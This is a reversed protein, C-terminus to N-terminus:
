NNLRIMWKGKSFIISYNLKLLEQMEDLTLFDIICSTYGDEICKNIRMKLVTFHFAEAHKMLEDHLIENTDM